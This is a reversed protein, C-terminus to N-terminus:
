QGISKKVDKVLNSEKKGASIIVTVLKTDPNFSESQLYTGQMISNSRQRISERLNYAIKAGEKNDGLQNELNAEQLSKGVTVLFRESQIDVKLFESIQRRAKLTAISIAQDKANPLDTTVNATAKSRISEFEGNKNYVVTLDGGVFTSEVIENKKNAACGAILFIIFLSAFKVLKNM